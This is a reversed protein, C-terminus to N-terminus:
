LSSAGVVGTVLQPPLVTGELTMRGSEDELIGRLPWQAEGDPRWGVLGRRLYSEPDRAAVVIFSRRLQVKCGGSDTELFFVSSWQCNRLFFQFM